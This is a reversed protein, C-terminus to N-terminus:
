QQKAVQFILKVNTKGNETKSERRVFAMGKSRALKMARRESYDRTLAPRWKKWTKQDYASAIAQFTGDAQRKFGIENSAGPVEKRSIVIEATEPRKKGVYDELQVAQAHVKPHLGMGQLAEILCQEDQFETTETRYASM